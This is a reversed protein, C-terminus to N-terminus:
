FYSPEYNDQSDFSNLSSFSDYINNKLIFNNDILDVEVKDKEILIYHLSEFIDILMEEKLGTSFRYIIYNKPKCLLLFNPAVQFISTPSLDSSHSSFVIM